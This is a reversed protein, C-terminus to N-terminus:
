LRSNVSVFNGPSPSDIAPVHTVALTAKNGSHSLTGTWLYSSTQSSRSPGSRAFRRCLRHRQADALLLLLAASARGGWGAPRLPSESIEKDSTTSSVV